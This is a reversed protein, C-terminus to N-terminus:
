GDAVEVKAVFADEDADIVVDGEFAAANGVVGADALGDGSELEGQALSGFDDEGGVEAAGLALADVGEAEAGDGYAEAFEEVVDEAGVFVYAEGRVTDAFDGLLHGPIELGTLGEEELIEAEVGFFFFVVTVEGFLEGIEAFDVNVVGEAGGVAGM